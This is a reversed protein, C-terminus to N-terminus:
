LTTVTAHNSRLWGLQHARKQKTHLLSRTSTSQGHRKFTRVTKSIIIMWLRQNSKLCLYILLTRVYHKTLISFHM